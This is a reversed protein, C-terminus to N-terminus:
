WSYGLKFEFDAAPLFGNESLKKHIYKGVWNKKIVDPVNIERNFIYNFGLGFGLSMYFGSDWYWDWGFRGMPTIKMFSGEFKNGEWSYGLQAHGFSVRPELYFTNNLGNNALLFRAGLGASWWIPTKTTEIEVKGASVTGLSKMALSLWWPYYVNAPVTLSLYDTLKVQYMVDLGGGIVALPSVSIAMTRDLNEAYLSSTFFLFALIGVLKKM